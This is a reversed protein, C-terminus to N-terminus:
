IGAPGSPVRKITRRLFYLQNPAREEPTGQFIKSFGLESEM